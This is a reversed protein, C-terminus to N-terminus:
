NEYSPCRSKRCNGWSLNRGKLLCLGVVVFGRRKWSNSVLEKGRPREEFSAWLHSCWGCMDSKGYGVVIKSEERINGWFSSEWKGLSSAQKIIFCQGHNLFPGFLNHVPHRLLSIYTSDELTQLRPSLSIQHGHPINKQSVPQQLCGQQLSYSM